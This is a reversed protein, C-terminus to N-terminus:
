KVVPAEQVWHFGHSLLLYKNKDFLHLQMHIHHGNMDGDLILQEAAPQVFTWAAKWAPDSPRTLKLTREGMDVAATYATFTDDMRQFHVVTPKQFVVRRWRDYDTILPARTQGDISMQTVEWIGYLPSKPAGGGFRHWYQLTVYFNMGVLYAGFVAQCVVAIRSARQNKFLPPQPSRSAPRDRFFMDRLRSAEPSLLFLCLLILHFSGIKVPVGYAMNLVFIQTSDALCLLAGLMATHPLFLLVGTLLEVCGLFIEYPPAAGISYWLVGMPSFNGFPQLLRTLPPASMQLPIAKAMGYAVMTAGVALRVVLRFWKPLGGSVETRRDVVSWVVTAVIALVLLCFLLVWDSMRDGSGTENFGLTQEVGFVRRAVWSVLNRMPPLASFNPLHGVPLLLLSALVQCYFIYLSFYVFCFRFAIKALFRPRQSSAPLTM